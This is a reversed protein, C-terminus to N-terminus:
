QKQRFNEHCGGCAKGVAGIQTKVADEDNRTTLAYRQMNSLEIQEGDVLFLDGRLPSRALAWGLSFTIDNEKQGILSFVSTVKQHYLFLDPM